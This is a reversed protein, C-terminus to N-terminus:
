NQYQAEAIVARNKGSRKAEYLHEDAISFANDFSDGSFSSLHMAGVSITVRIATDDRVISLKRVEDLVRNCTAVLHERSIGPFAVFFEEGGWRAVIDGHRVAHTLAQSVAVIVSDGISHGYRDNIRKFDDIDVIAVGMSMRGTCSEMARYVFSRNRLRTLSDTEAQHEIRALLRKKQRLLEATLIVLIAVMSLEIRHAFVEHHWHEVKEVDNAFVYFYIQTSMSLLMFGGTVLVAWSFGLRTIAIICPLVMLSILKLWDSYMLALQAFALAAMALLAPRDGLQLRKRWGRTLFCFFLTTIALGSFLQESFWDIITFAQEAGPILHDVLLGVLLSHLTVAMFVPAILLASRSYPSFWRRHRIVLQISTMYLLLYLTDMLCAKIQQEASMAQPTLLSVVSHGAFFLLLFCALRIYRGYYGRCRWYLALMAGLANGPWFFILAAATQEKLALYNVAACIVTFAFLRTAVCM